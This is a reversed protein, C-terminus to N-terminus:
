DMRELNLLKERFNTWYTNLGDEVNPLLIEFTDALYIEYFLSINHNLDLCEISYDQSYISIEDILTNLEELIYFLDMLYANLSAKVSKKNPETSYLDEIYVSVMM